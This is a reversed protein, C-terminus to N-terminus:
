PRGDETEGKKIARVLRKNKWAGIVKHEQCWACVTQGTEIESVHDYDGCVECIGMFFEPESRQPALKDFTDRM